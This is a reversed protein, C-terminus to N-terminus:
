PRRPDVYPKGQQYLALRDRYNDKEDLGALAIAKEQWRVAEKFDGNAAHAAALTDLIPSVEYKSAVCAFTALTM